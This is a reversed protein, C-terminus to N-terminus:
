RRSFRFTKSSLDRIQYGADRIGYGTDRIRYGTDRIGYGTDRITDRIGYGTDRIGYGTDWIGYGTTDRIGYGTDGTNQIEYGTVDWSLLFIKGLKTKKKREIKSKTRKSITQAVLM